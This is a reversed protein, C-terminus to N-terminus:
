GEGRAFRYDNKGSKKVLYMAGDALKMLEEIDTGDRPCLAIGISVGVRLERGGCDFPRSVLDIAKRAILAANEPSALDTAIILFEDGGVRAVTDMARVSSRLREAVEKLVLDGAEHGLSDNVSKFGDLDLFMVAARNAHRRSSDVAQALRDRALRLTPLGTLADHNALHRVLEESEKRATIDVMMGCLGAIAGGPDHLPFKLTLFCKKGLSGELCEEVELPSDAEMVRRDHEGFRAALEPPFLEADTKGLSLGYGIGTVAEFKRNVLEYRGQRDKTFILADSHEIIEALYQRNRRLAEEVLKRDTIDHISSLLCEGEPLDIRQMSVLCTRPEGDKRKFVVEQGRVLAGGRALAVIRERASPESWLGLELTSSGDLDERSYGTMAMFAENYELLKGDSVRTLTVAYPLIKFVKSYKAESLALAEKSAQHERLEEDLEGLLRRSVLLFLSFTLAVFLILQLLIMSADWPGARFLDGSRPAALSGALRLVNAAFFFVFVIGVPRAAQRSAPPARRLALWAGRAAVLALALSVNATRLSLDDRSYTFFAQLVVFALGIVRSPWLRRELGFFRELGAYLILVGAVILYNAVLVSFFAPLVGRAIILIFGALQMAYDLIWFNVGPYRGGGQRLLVALVVLCLASLVTYAFFLTWGDIRV